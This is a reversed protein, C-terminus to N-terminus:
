PLTLTGFRGSETGSGVQATGTAQFAPVDSGPIVTGPITSLGFTGNTDRASWYLAASDLGSGEWTTMRFSVWAGNDFKSDSVDMLSVQGGGNGTSDPSTWENDNILVQGDVELYAFDSAADKFLVLRDGGPAPLATRQAKGPILIEGTLNVGYASYGYGARADLMAGADGFVDTGQGSSPYDAQGVSSRWFINPLIVSSAPGGQMRINMAEITGPNGGLFIDAKLGPATGGGSVPHRLHSAPVLDDPQMLTPDKRSNVVGPKPELTGFAGPVSDTTFARKVGNEGDDVSWYLAASDGGQAEWMIMRFPVWEGDDYMPHSVDLVTLNGGGNERSTVGTWNNDNILQKGDIELYAFDGVGDKFLIFEGPLDPQARDADGPILIQGKMEVGYNDEAGTFLGSGNFSAAFINKGQGDQPYAGANWFVRPIVVSTKTIGPATMLALNGALSGANAGKLRDVPNLYIDATLGPASGPGGQRFNAARVLLQPPMVTPDKRTSSIGSKPVFSSRPYVSLTWNVPEGTAEGNESVYASGLVQGTVPDGQVTGAVQRTNIQAQAGAVSVAMGLLMQIRNNKM